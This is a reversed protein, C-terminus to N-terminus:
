SLLLLSVMRSIGGLDATLEIEASPYLGHLFDTVAEGQCYGIELLLWGGHHLKEGVQLCLRRITDLGDMGGNLALAPEFDVTNVASLEPERVYPLNAIILDIRGPLPALLDGELLRVRDAVGHKRCNLFAVELASSSIDTAYIISEPLNVALSVAIAGCGTGIDAISSLHYARALELAKDVLLESEPRPILVEPDVTFDLGYFERHGTIYSVPENNLRRKCYHQFEEYQAASFVRNLEMYLEVRSIKLTHRLLLEAEFYPDDIGASAFLDRAHGLAQKVTL